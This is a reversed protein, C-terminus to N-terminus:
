LRLTQTEGVMQLESCDPSVAEEIWGATWGDM